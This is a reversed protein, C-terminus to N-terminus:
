FFRPYPLSVSGVSARHHASRCTPWCVASVGGVCSRCYQRGVTSRRTPQRTTQITNTVKVLIQQQQPQFNTHYELRQRGSLQSPRIVQANTEPGLPRPQLAQGPFMQTTYAANLRKALRRVRCQCHRVAELLCLAM